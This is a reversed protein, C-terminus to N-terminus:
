GGNSRRRVRLIHILVPVFVAIALALSFYCKPVGGATRPCTERGALELSSGFAALMFVPLWGAFFVLPKWLKPHLVTLLVCAYAASVLHCAPLPGLHPCAGGNMLEAWSVPLVGSLGLGALLAVILRIAPHPVTSM